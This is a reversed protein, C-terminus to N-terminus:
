TPPNALLDAINRRLWDADTGHAFWAAEAAAADAPSRAFELAPPLDAPLHVSRCLPYDRVRWEPRHTTFFALCPVGYADALHPMATDASVVARAGAVLRCLAAFDAAVPAALAGPRPEGQTLVPLGTEALADLITAYVAEPMDRLAMSTRPCVLVYGAPLGPLPPAPLRPALWANRRLARPVGAPDLGLHRLFFDIMAVGRFAPDFAFDRLDIVRAFGAALPFPREPTAEDWPLTRIDALDAAAAYLGQVIPSLGPLRFLVPKGPLAGLGLAAALAQVGVVSDGLSRGFGNLIAM